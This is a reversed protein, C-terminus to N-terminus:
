RDIMQMDNQLKKYLLAMLLFVQASALVLYVTDVDRVLKDDKPRQSLVFSTSYLRKLEDDLKIPYCRLMGVRVLSRFGDSNVTFGQKRLERRFLVNEPNPRGDKLDDVLSPQDRDLRYLDYWFEELGVRSPTTTYWRYREGNFEFDAFPNRDHVYLKLEFLLDSTTPDPTFQFRYRHYGSCKKLHVVCYDYSDTEPDLLRDKAHIDPVCRTITMIKHDGLGIGLSSTANLIPMAYGDDQKAKWAAKEAALASQLQKYEDYAHKSAYSSIAAGFNRDKIYFQRTAARAVTGQYAPPAEQDYHPILDSLSAM